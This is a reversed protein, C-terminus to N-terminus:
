SLGFTKVIFVAMEGRTNPHDPCYNGGGCGATIGEAALREIWDAFPSPCPVDLFVGPTCPPPAYSSGHEAKLLFVAMQDRPVTQGPCYNGNGCGATIGEHFLAEIWDTFTGPCSVDPFIGTCQLPTYCVGHKAKLLFVAMQERLVGQDVGYSGNGVGASIGNAVLIDVFDHFQHGGPVDLFDAVWGNRLTGTVGSPDLVTVDNVSGAPRAPMTATISTPGMVTVNTAAVGGVTVTAGSEYLMGPLTAIAGGAHAGGPPDIAFLIRQSFESTNGEPDTATATVPDDAELVLPVDTAFTADGFGDTSVQVSGLYIEGQLYDRPRARCSPNSFLDIDFTESAVGNLLGEIHTTSGGPVVSTIMPYNQLRNGGDSDLDNPDNATVGGVYSAEVLDIGLPGNDFIRNGRIRVDVVGPLVEVGNRFDDPRDVPTKGNHAIVNAQGPTTGGITWGNGAAIGSLGNGLDIAGTEDTGVFNGEVDANTAVISNTFEIGYYSNASVVNGKIVTSASGELIGNLNGLPYEGSATVGIFNGQIMVSAAHSTSIGHASNGSIVNREASTSGGIRAGSSVGILVGEQQNPIPSMGNAMPGILNGVIVADLSASDDGLVVGGVDNGSVVNGSVSVGVAGEIDIGIGQVGPRFSGTPDTGIFNGAVLAGDGGTGVRIAATPCRNVVLGDVIMALINSNGANVTLCPSAGAGTGDIEITLVADNGGGEPHTNASSGPQSYGDITVPHAIAPLPSALTITHVGTGPINFAIVDDGFNANADLIAQRLSGAGSDSSNTVTFTAARVSSALSLVLCTALIWRVYRPRGTKM